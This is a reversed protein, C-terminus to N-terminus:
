QYCHDIFCITNINVLQIYYSMSLDKNCVEPLLLVVTNLYKGHCFGSCLYSTRFFFASSFHKLLLCTRSNVDSVLYIDESQDIPFADYTLSLRFFIVASSRVPSGFRM